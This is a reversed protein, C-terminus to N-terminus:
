FNDRQTEIYISRILHQFGEIAQNKFANLHEEDIELTSLETEEGNFELPIIVHFLVSDKVRSVVVVSMQKSERFLCGEDVYFEGGTIVSLFSGLMTSYLRQFCVGGFINANPIEAAVVLAKEIKLPGVATPAEFCVANGIPSATDGFVAYGFRRRVLTCEYAETDPYLQKAQEPTLIM